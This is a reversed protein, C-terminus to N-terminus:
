HHCTSCSVKSKVNNKAMLQQGLTEQNEGPQWDMNFIEEQPRLNKAPSRHCDLCWSMHLTADRWMLPMQDVPGHCTSCGVGKAVHISHNFYVFDPLDHVRTWQLPVNERYSARVPELMDADSWVQSHCTMCTHTPPIGASASNEVQNHCYRCDLGVDTVHHKHSFMVPQGRIISKQSSWPARNYANALLLAGGGGLLLLLLSVKALTNTSPHFLQPM